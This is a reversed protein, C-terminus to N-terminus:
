PSNNGMVSRLADFVAGPRIGVMCNPADRPYEYGLYLYGHEFGEPCLNIAHDSLPGWRKVNSPGNLAVLRAGAAAALHMVGTNVSVVGAAQSLLAALQPFSLMGAASQIDVNSRAALAVLGSARAADAPGGSIVIAYGLRRLEGALQVWYADPWERMAGRGGGAVPHFVVTGITGPVSSYPAAAISDDPTLVVQPRSTSEINLPRLLARFNDIAHRDPSHDVVADYAFHRAQGSTRFGVTYCGAFVAHIASIRVWSNCDIMLDFRRARLLRAARDPRNVPVTIVNDFMPLLSAIARNSVSAVLTFSADPFAQRLDLVAASALLTDGIAGLVSVAVRRPAVPPVRRRRGLGALVLFAAGAYRDLLRGVRGSRAPSASPSAAEEVSGQGSASMPLSDLLPSSGADM